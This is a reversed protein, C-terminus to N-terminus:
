WSWGAGLPTTGGQVTAKAHVTNMAATHGIVWREPTTRSGIRADTLSGIGRLVLGVALLSIFAYARPTYLLM